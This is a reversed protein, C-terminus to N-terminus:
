GIVFPVDFGLLRQIQEIQRKIFNTANGVARIAGALARVAFVLVKSIARGITEFAEANDEIFPKILREYDNPNYELDADQFLIIDGSALDIAKKLAAGKGKNNKNLILKDYLEKNDSLLDRTRDRSGDDSIVIEIDFKSKQKNVRRLIELITKEENYCPIVVSIKM